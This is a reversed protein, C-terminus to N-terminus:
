FAINQENEKELYHLFLCHTLQAILCDNIALQM